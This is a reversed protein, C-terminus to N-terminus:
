INAAKIVKKIKTFNTTHDDNFDIIFAVDGKHYFKREFGSSIIAKVLERKARKRLKDTRYAKILAGSLCFKIAGKDTAKIISGKKNEALAGKTWKTKDSYLKQITM